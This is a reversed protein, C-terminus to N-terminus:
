LGRILTSEPSSVGGEVPGVAVLQFGLLEPKDPDVKMEGTDTKVADLSLDGLTPDPLVDASALLFEAAPKVVWRKPRLGEFWGLHQCRVADVVRDPM